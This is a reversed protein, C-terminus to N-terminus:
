ATAAAEGALWGTSFAAQLNYGGTDAHLDLLEGAIYLGAVLRSEMTRPEIEKLPVGGATVIAEAFSRYGDIDLRVDKLWQTLRRRGNAPFRRTDIDAPLGCAALCLGVMEQPLLGRLISAIEEGGRSELDRQLRLDLRAHDLAPKLDLSLAVQQRRDLADVVQGSLTLVTPGGVGFPTFALEGFQKDVRKGDILLRVAVNRLSLGAMLGVAPDPCTLPVLAPRTPVMGHGLAAAMRYGDGTSGTRPYSKGGTALIVRDGDIRKGSLRVGVVRGEAALIDEVACDLRVQVGCERVWDALVRVVDLARGSLPFIRGGREVVLPLGREELFATLQPTFFRQFCQRLFRGNKGFRSLFEKLPATNGLNCRGKGSIGIKRGTREMKELLLVEGGLSAARGAAMLGAAGGGVVIIRRKNM